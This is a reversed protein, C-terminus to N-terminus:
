EVPRFSADPIFSYNRRDKIVVPDPTEDIKCVKDIKQLNREDYWGLKSLFCYQDYECRFSDMDHLRLGRQCAQKDYIGAACALNFSLLDAIIKATEERVIIIGKSEKSCIDKYTTAALPQSLFNTIHNELM